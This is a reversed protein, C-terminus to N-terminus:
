RNAQSTNEQTNQATYSSTEKLKATNSFKSSDEINLSHNLRTKNGKVPREHNHHEHIVTRENNLAMSGPEVQIVADITNSTIKNELEYQQSINPVVVTGNAMSSTSSGGDIEDGTSMEGGEWVTDLELEPM